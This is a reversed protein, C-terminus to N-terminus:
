DFYEDFHSPDLILAPNNASPHDFHRCYQNYRSRTYDQYMQGIISSDIEPYLNMTTKKYEDFTDCHLHVYEDFSLKKTESQDM